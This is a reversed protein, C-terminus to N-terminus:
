SLWSPEVGSCVSVYERWLASDAEVGPTTWFMTWQDREGEEPGKAAAAGRGARLPALKCMGKAREFYWKNVPNDSKSRWVVGDPFCHSVMSQFVIDAVGSSGQSRTAVAFKDLYPLLCPQNQPDKASSTDHEYTLIAAGEYDGAIIVGAVRDKIRALYHPLDLKRRFSDEILAQLRALNIDPHSTIDIQPRSSTPTWPNTRPDPVMLLPMGRKVLTPGYSAPRAHLPDALRAEPLSSSVPPRNTLLNHILYNKTRRTAARMLPDQDDTQDTTSDAMRSSSAAETPSVVLASTEPPLLALCQHLMKLNNTYTNRDTNDVQELDKVIGNLEHELNIFVHGRDKRRVSPIGGLPDIVVLRDLRTTVSTQSSPATSSVTDLGSLMRTLASMADSARVPAMHGTESSIAINSLVPISRRHLPDLLLRPMDAKVDHSGSMTLPCDVHRAGASNHNGLLKVLREAQLRYAALSLPRAAATDDLDLFVLVHMDLRVLQSLTLAIGDLTADDISQPSRVSVLTVHSVPQSRPRFKDHDVTTSLSFKPSEIIAKGPRYLAGCNVGSKQLRRSHLAARANDKQAPTETEKNRDHQTIRTLFQRADRRTAHAQLIDVFLDRQDQVAKSAPRHPPPRPKVMDDAQLSLHSSHTTSFLRGHCLIPHICKKMSQRVAMALSYQIVM